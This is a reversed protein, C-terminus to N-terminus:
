IQLILFSTLIVQLIYLITFQLKTKTIECLLLSGLVLGFFYYILIHISEYGFFFNIIFALLNFLLGIVLSPIFSLHYDRSIKIKSFLLAIYLIIIGFAIYVDNTYKWSVYTSVVMGLIFWIWTLVFILVGNLLINKIAQKFNPHISITPNYKM